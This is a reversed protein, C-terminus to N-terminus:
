QVKSYDVRKTAGVIMNIEENLFQCGFLKFKHTLPTHYMRITWMGCLVSQGLSAVQMFKLQWRKQFMLIGHFTFSYFRENLLLEQLQLSKMTIRWLRRAQIIFTQMTLPLETHNGGFPLILLPTLIKHIRESRTPFEDDNEREFTVVQIRNQVM